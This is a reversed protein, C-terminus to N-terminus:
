TNSTKRFRCNVLGKMWGELREILMNREYNEEYYAKGCKGMTDRIIKPIKYMDIVTKALANPDEAPCTMGVGAEEVVRAGEGDLAAIIPKACALYSQVKAPVTLAFIPDRKLTVLMVDALSFFRPMSEVPYSGLLHVIQTLGRKQIQEKVWSHMRGNGIIVWHIDPFNKLKEAANLITGFDQSVGINGAFMVCFGTSIAARETADSELVVPQYLEEVSQPFYLLRRADVGIRIIPPFFAQSTCLIKDCGKYIFRVLSEVLKLIWKSRVAGTASLSEPWLDQIWLMIPISKLRKFLLAPLGVTIPSPEFVFILDFKGRCLTPIFTSAFLAFSLYNLTLRIKGGKGRPVLPVRFIKVGKYDQRMPKFLHYGSFFRGDPYNPIGTLVTVMHNREILGLALDNIRFNEPWFYQTIILINL